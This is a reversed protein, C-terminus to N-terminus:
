LKPVAYVAISIDSPFFECHPDISSLDAQTSSRTCYMDRVSFCLSLASLFASPSSNYRNTKRHRVPGIRIHIKDTVSRHAGTIFGVHELFTRFIM